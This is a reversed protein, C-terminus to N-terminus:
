ATWTPVEEKLARGLGFILGGLVIEDNGAGADGKVRAYLSSKPKCIMTPVAVIAINNTSDALRLSRTDNPILIGRRGVQFRCESLLPTPSLLSKLHTICLCFDRGITFPNAAAEFLWDSWTLAVIPVLWSTKYTAVGAHTFQPRILGFGLETDEPNLGTFQPKNDLENKTSRLAYVYQEIRDEMVKREDAGPIMLIDALQIKFTDLEVQTLPALPFSEGYLTVSPVQVCRSNLTLDRLSIM